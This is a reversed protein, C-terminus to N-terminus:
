GLFAAIQPQWDEGHPVQAVLSSSLLTAAPDNRIAAALGASVAAHVEDAQFGADGLARNIVTRADGARGERLEALLQTRMTGLRTLEIATGDALTVTVTYPKPEGIAAINGFPVHCSGGSNAAVLLAADAVRADCSGAELKMGDAALIRHYRLVM